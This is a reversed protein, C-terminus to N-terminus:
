LEVSFSCGNPNPPNLIAQTWAALGSGNTRPQM